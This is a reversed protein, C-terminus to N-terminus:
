ENNQLLKILKEISSVDAPSTGINTELEALETQANKLETKAKELKSSLQIQTNAQNTITSVAKSKNISFRLGFAGTAAVLTSLVLGYYWLGHTIVTFNKYMCFVIFVIGSLLMSVFIKQNSKYRNGVKISAQLTDLMPEVKNIVKEQKRMNDQLDSRRNMLQSISDSKQIMGHISSEADWGRNRAEAEIEELSLNLHSIGAKSLELRFKLESNSAEIRDRTAQDTDMSKLHAISNKHCSRVVLDLQRDFLEPDNPNFENKLLEIAPDSYTKDTVKILHRGLVPDLLKHLLSKPDLTESLQKLLEIARVDDPNKEFATIILNEIEDFPRSVLLNLAQDKVQDDPDEILEFAKPVIKEPHMTKALQLGRLRVLAKQNDLLTNVRDFDEEDAIKSLITIAHDGGSGESAVIKFLESVLEPSKRRIIAAFVKDSMDGSNLLDLLIPTAWTSDTQALGDIAAKKIDQNSDKIFSTIKPLQEEGCHTIFIPILNLLISTDIQEKELLDSIKPLVKETPMKILLDAVTSRVHFKDSDLLAFLGSIAAPHKSNILIEGARQRNSNSNDGLAKLMLRVAQINDCGNLTEIATMRFKTNKNDLNESITKWHEKDTNM